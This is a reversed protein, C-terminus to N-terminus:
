ENEDSKIQGLVEQQLGRAKNRIREEQKDISSIRIGLMEKKSELEKKLEPKSSLVMVNGIIKYAKKTTEVEKLASEVEVLQSQFQQKQGLLANVNQELLQLQNIKEKTEKDIEM